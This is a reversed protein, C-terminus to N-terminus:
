PISPVFSLLNDAPSYTFHGLTPSSKSPHEKELKAYFAALAKIREDYGPHTSDPETAGGDGSSKHLSILDDICIRGQYDARAMMVASDRDAEVEQQRSKADNLEEKKKDPASPITNNAYYSALVIHNRLIHGIEHAVTCALWGTHRGYIRFAARPV